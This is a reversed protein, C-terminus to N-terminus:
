RHADLQHAAVAVIEFEELKSVSELLCCADAVPVRGYKRSFAKAQWLRLGRESINEIRRGDGPPRDNRLVVQGDLCLRHIGPRRRPHSRTCVRVNASISVGSGFLSRCCHGTPVSPQPRRVLSRDECLYTGFLPAAALLRRHDMASRCRM